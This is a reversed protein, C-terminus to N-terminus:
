RFVCRGSAPGCQAGLVGSLDGGGEQWVAKFPLNAVQGKLECPDDYLTISITNDSVLLRPEAYVRGSWLVGALAAGVIIAMAVAWYPAMTKRPAPQEEREYESWNLM